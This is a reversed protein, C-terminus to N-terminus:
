WKEGKKMDIYGSPLMLLGGILAGWALGGDSGASGSDAMLLACATLLVLGIGFAWLRVVHM